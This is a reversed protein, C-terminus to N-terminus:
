PPLKKVSKALGYADSVSGLDDRSAAVYAADFGPYAERCSFLTLMKGNHNIRYGNRCPEHGRVVVKANTAALWRETVARGFHRGIGRLSPEWEVDGELPRPDNWLLEEMVRNQLHSKQATAIVQRWNDGHIAHTPLGGHVLLLRDRMVTALTLLGFLALVRGYLVMAGTEFRDQMRCPLDHSSFPFEAPAEHNGRMLVVSDPHAHKLHCIAYLVGISDSGKDVYDGLFVMKNEQSSLFKEYDIGDLIRFLTRSDGHLDGIIALEDCDRIEILGGAVTGGAIAGRKQEDELASIAQELVQSFESLGASASLPAIRSM